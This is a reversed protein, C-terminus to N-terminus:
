FCDFTCVMPEKTSSQFEQRAGIVACTWFYLSSRMFSYSCPVKVGSAKMADSSGRGLLNGWGDSVHHRSKRTLKPHDINVLPDLSACHSGYLWGSICHARSLKASISPSTLGANTNFKSWTHRLAHAVDWKLINWLDREWMPWLPFRFATSLRSSLFAWWTFPERFAIVTEWHQVYCCKSWQTVNHKKVYERPIDIRLQM